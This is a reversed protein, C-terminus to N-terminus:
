AQMVVLEVVAVFCVCCRYWGKTNVRKERPARVPIRKNKEVIIKYEKSFGVECSILPIV